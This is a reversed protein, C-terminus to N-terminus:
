VGPPTDLLIEVIEEPHSIMPCHDSELVVKRVNAKGEKIVGDVSDHLFKPDVAKDKGTLVFTTPVHLYGAYALRGTFSVASHPKQMAAYHKQESESIDSCIYAGGISPDMPEIYELESVIQAPQKDGVLEQINIGVPPLLSGIYVLHVLAEPASKGASNREAPTTGKVAETAVFGGYSNAALVVNKGEDAFKSVVSRIHGADDYMTAPPGDRKGVSPLDIEHVSYGRKKLLSTVKHYYQGPCFAGPVLVFATDQPSPPM